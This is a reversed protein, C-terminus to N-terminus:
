FWIKEIYKIIEKARSQIASITWENHEYIFRNIKLYSNNKLMEQKIEFPKNSLASNDKSDIISLNGLTHIWSSIDDWDDAKSVINKERTAKNWESPNQPFIHEINIKNEDLEKGKSLYKEISLLIYKLNSKNSYLDRKVSIDRIEELTPMRYNSSSNEIKQIVEIEFSNKFDNGNKISESLKHAIDAYSKNAEVRGFSCITRAVSLRSLFLMSDEINKKNIPYYKNDKIEGNYKLILHIISYFNFKNAKILPYLKYDWQNNNIYDFIIKDEKLMTLFKTFNNESEKIKEEMMEKFKYYLIKSNIPYLIGDYIALMQRYFDVIIKEPDSYCDFGSIFENDFNKLFEINNELKSVIYNKILDASTLSKGKSNISEFIQFEDEKDNLNILAIKIKELCLRSFKKIFDDESNNELKIKSKLYSWVKFYNLEKEEKTLSSINNKLVKKIVNSDNIRELKFKQEDDGCDIYSKLKIYEDIERGKNSSAVLASILILFSTVRQQGDVLIYKNRIDNTKKIILSGLFYEDSIDKQKDSADEKLSIFEMLDNWLQKIEKESTWTYKRQYFPVYFISDQKGILDILFMDKSEM